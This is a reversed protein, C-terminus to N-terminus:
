MNHLFYLVIFDQHIEICSTHSLMQTAVTCVIMCALRVCVCVSHLSICVYYRSPNGAFFMLYTRDKPDVGAGGMGLKSWDVVGRGPHVPLSIDKHAVFLPKSYDATNVLAIANTQLGTHSLKAVNTGMDHACIYFHDAGSSRNWYPYTHIVHNVMDRTTEM